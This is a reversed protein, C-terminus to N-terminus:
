RIALRDGARISRRKLIRYNSAILTDLSIRYKRAISWLSEGRKVTHFQYPARIRRGRKLAKRLLRKWARRRLVSKRPREYLDAYMSHRRSQGKRFPLIVLQGRKLRRWKKMGNLTELVYSAVKFKKAVDVLQTKRGRVRYTQFDTAKFDGVQNKFELWRQKYNPPVRLPYSVMNLPTFWRRLEPNLYHLEEFDVGLADAVKYIDTQPPLDIEEFDLPEDFNINEFGFDALNKGIIALAMIKPVYNKTEPKLYRYKRLEWFNKTKYRKIARAIKGEGANYAAAALEWSGFQKYLKTLYKSAAITSKIPDRREDIYWDIKLGYRRATYPMFQWPGVARAWSKAKNNFGSEAMALFILDRPMGNDELIKGLVPAYRGARASYKEFFNRGRKQFYNIWKQVEKNYVVPIDFYYQSLGLHEAGYLFYSGEAYKEVQSSGEIAEIGDQAFAWTGLINLCLLYLLFRKYFLM